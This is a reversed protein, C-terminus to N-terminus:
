RRSQEAIGVSNRRFHLTSKTKSDTAIEHWFEQTRAIKAAQIGDSIRMLRYKGCM